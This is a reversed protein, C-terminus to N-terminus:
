ASFYNKRPSKLKGQTLPCANIEFGSQTLREDWKGGSIIRLVRNQLGILNRQYTPYTNSWIQIGYLLHPHVITHHLLLLTKTPLLHKLKSM